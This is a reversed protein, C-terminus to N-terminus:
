VVDREILELFLNNLDRVLVRRDTGVSVPVGGTSVVTFGESKLWPLFADLGHVYLQLISTGPDQIRTHVPKREINKFEVFTITTGGADFESKQVDEGIVASFKLLLAAYAATTKDLDDVTFQFDSDANDKWPMAFALRPPDTPYILQQGSSLPTSDIRRSLDVLFGDRDQLFMGPLHALVNGTVTHGGARRAADYSKIGVNAIRLTGAGPDQIKPQVPRRDIGKYEILEVGLAASPIRLRARRMQAGPTDGLRMMAPDSDFPGPRAVVELGLADRYFELAKDLNEVVRVVNGVGIVAEAGSMRPLATVAALVLWSRKM